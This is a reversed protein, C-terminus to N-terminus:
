NELELHIRECDSLNELMQNIRHNWKIQETTNRGMETELDYRENFKTCTQMHKEYIANLRREIQGSGLMGISKIEKRINRAFIEYITFRVQEHALLERTAGDKKWSKSKLFYCPVEIIIKEKVPTRHVVIETKTQILKEKDNGAKGSFDEWKLRYDKKWLIKDSNSEAPNPKIWSSLSILILIPILKLNSKNM